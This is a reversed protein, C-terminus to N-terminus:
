APRRPRRGVLDDYVGLQKAEAVGWPFVFEGRVRDRFQTEREIVLVRYGRESMGRALTSGGVGGGVTVLDYTAM